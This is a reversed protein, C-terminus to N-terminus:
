YGDKGCFGKNNGGLIRDWRRKWLHWGVLAAVAALGLTLALALLFSM